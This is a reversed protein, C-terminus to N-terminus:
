NATSILARRFINQLTTTKISIRLWFWNKGKSICTTTAEGPLSFFIWTLMMGEKKWCECAECWAQLVKICSRATTYRTVSYNVPRMEKCFSVNSLLLTYTYTMQKGIFHQFLHNKVQSKGLRLSANVYLYVKATRRKKKTQFLLFSFRHKPSM